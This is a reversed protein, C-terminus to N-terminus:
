GIEEKINCIICKRYKANSRDTMGLDDFYVLGESAGCESCVERTDNYDLDLRNYVVESIKQQFLNEESPVQREFASSLDEVVASMRPSREYMTLMLSDFRDPSHGLRSKTKEKAELKLLGKSTPPESKIAVLESDQIEDNLLKLKGDRINERLKWALEARTNIFEDPKEARSGVNVGNVDHGLEKLRYVVGSGEGIVDINVIDPSWEKILNVIIGSSEM